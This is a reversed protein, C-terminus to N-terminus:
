GPCCRRGCRFPWCRWWCCRAVDGASPPAVSSPSVLAVFGQPLIICAAIVLSASSGSTRTLSAGILPLVAANGLQFLAMCLAFLLLRRDLLLRWVPDSRPAAAGPETAPQRVTRLAIVAPLMLAATLWFVAAEDVYTGVWGMVAAAIGSGIAAFRANRGLREGLGAHGVLRLSIAAIAPGLMCSAFGHLVEAGLVPLRDPWIALLLASGAVALCAIFAATRKSRAADVLAGAPVQSLMGALTGLSLATGIERQTWAESALYVAVFPGFGTQVSAVLTNFLDLSRSPSM